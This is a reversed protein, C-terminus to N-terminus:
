STTRSTPAWVSLISTVAVRSIIWVSVPARSPRSVASCISLREITPRLGSSSSRMRGPETMGSTLESSLTPLRVPTDLVLWSAWYATLPMRPDFVTTVRSPERRASKPDFLPTM